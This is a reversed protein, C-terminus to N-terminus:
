LQDLLSSEKSRFFHTGIFFIFISLGWGWTMKLSLPSLGAAWRIGEASSTIPNLWILFSWREPLLDIPYFVPSLWLALSAILPLTHHLNKAQVSWASIIFSAGASFLLVPLM